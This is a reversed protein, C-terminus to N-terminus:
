PAPLICPRLPRHVHHIVVTICRSLSKWPLEPVQRAACCPCGSGLTAAARAAECAPDSTQRASDSHAGRMCVAALWSGGASYRLSVQKLAVRGCVAAIVGREAM